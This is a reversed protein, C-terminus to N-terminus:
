QPLFDRSSYWSMFFIRYVASNLAQAAGANAASTPTDILM